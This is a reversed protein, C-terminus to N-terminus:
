RAVTNGTVSAQVWSIGWPHALDLSGQVKIEVVITDTHPGRGVHVHLGSQTVNMEGVPSRQTQLVRWRAGHVLRLTVMRNPAHIFLHVQLERVQFPLVAQPLSFSVFIDAPSTLSTM